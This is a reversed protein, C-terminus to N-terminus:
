IRNANMEEEVAIRVCALKVATCGLKTHSKCFDVCQCLPIYDDLETDYHPCLKADKHYENEWAALRATVRESFEAVDKWDENFPCRSSLACDPGYNPCHFCWATGNYPRIFFWDRESETLM